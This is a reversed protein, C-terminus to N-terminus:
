VSSSGSTKPDDEAKPIGEEFETPLDDEIQDFVEGALIDKASLDADPEVGAHECAVRYAALACKASTAPAALVTPWRVGGDTEIKSLLELPLDELIVQGGGPVKVAFAM